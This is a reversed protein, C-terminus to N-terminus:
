LAYKTLFNELIPKHVIRAYDQKWSYSYIGDKESVDVEEESLVRDMIVTAEHGIKTLRDATYYSRTVKYQGDVKDVADNFYVNADKLEGNEWYQTTPVFGRDYGFTEDGAASLHHNKMYDVYTQLTTNPHGEEDKLIGKIALDVLWVNTKFNHNSSFPVMVNPFCDNCDPCFSWVYQVIVKGSKETFLANDLYEPSVYYYQPDRAVKTVVKRLTKLETFMEKTDNGYNYQNAKKGNKMLAFVPDSVARDFTLGFWDEGDSFQNKDIYYVKTKYETVYKDIVGHFTSWCACGEGLHIALLFNEKRNIKTQLTNYTLEEAGEDVLTGYTLRARKDKTCANLSLTGFALLPILFLVKKM